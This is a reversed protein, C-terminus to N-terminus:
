KQAIYSRRAVVSNSARLNHFPRRPQAELLIHGFIRFLYDAASTLISMGARTRDSFDLM